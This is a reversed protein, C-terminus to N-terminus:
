SQQQATCRCNQHISDWFASLDIPKPLVAVGPPARRPTSTSVVVQLTALAPERRLIELLEQGSMVPMSLDLILVCPRHHALMALADAGNSALLAICGAMEIAERLTERIDAEDDVVMVSKQDETCM